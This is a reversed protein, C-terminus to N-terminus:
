KLKSWNITIPLAAETTMTLKNTDISYKWTVVNKGYLFGDIEMKM